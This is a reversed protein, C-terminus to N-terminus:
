FEYIKNRITKMKIKRWRFKITDPVEQPQKDLFYQFFCERLYENPEKEIINKIEGWIVDLDKQTKLEEYKEKAVLKIIQVFIKKLEESKEIYMSKGGGQIIADLVITKM